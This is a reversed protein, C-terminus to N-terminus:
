FFLQQHDIRIGIKNLIQAKIKAISDNAEVEWVITERWIIKVFIQMKRTFRIVILLIRENPISYYALTKEDELQNGNFFLSQQDIPFGEM